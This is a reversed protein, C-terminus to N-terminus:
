QAKESKKIRSLEPGLHCDRRVGALSGEYGVWFVDSQMATPGNAIALVYIDRALTDTRCSRWGRQETVNFFREALDPSFRSLHEGSNEIWTLISRSSMDSNRLAKEKLLAGLGRSVHKSRGEGLSPVAKNLYEPFAGSQHAFTWVRLIQFWYHDQGREDLEAWLAHSSLRHPGFELAM